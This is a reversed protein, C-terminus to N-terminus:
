RRLRAFELFEFCCYRFYGGPSPPYGFQRCSASIEEFLEREVAVLIKIAGEQSQCVQSNGVAALRSGNERAAEYTQARNFTTTPSVSVAVIAYERAELLQSMTVWILVLALIVSMGVTLPRLFPIEGLDDWIKKIKEEM